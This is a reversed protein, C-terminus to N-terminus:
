AKDAKEGKEAKEVAARMLDQLEALGQNMRAQIVEFSATNSKVVLDALDKLNSSAKEFAQKAVEAQKTAFEQPDKAATLEATAGRLSEMADRMIQTQREALTKLGEAALRGAETLADMNRRYSAMVSDLDVGPVKWQKLLEELERFPNTNDTM